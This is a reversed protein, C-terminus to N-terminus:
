GIAMSIWPQLMAKVDDSLYSAVFNQVATEGARMGKVAGYLPNMLMANILQACALKVGTPLSAYTFGAVYRVKVESYYALMIGAPVWLQGTMVDLGANVPDWIEWVPPGGFKSLAALLNFDDVNYNGADGRRGYGYRGTGSIVMMAPIRSLITIPRDKPMPKQETIVLGSEMLCGASHSFMINKLTVTLPGPATGAMAVIIGAETVSANIRDLILVDGVNLALLPGTVTVVVNQGPDIEGVSTLVLGPTMAQMYCPQGAGDPAWILGEPRRLWVNDLLVSAQQVQAATANGVGFSAYDQAQLYISPM